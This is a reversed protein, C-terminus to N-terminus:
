RDYEHIGIYFNITKANATPCICRAWVKTGSAIRKSKVGTIGADANNTASIFAVETMDEAAILAALGASEGLAFQIVFTLTSNTTTVLIRHPDLEVKGAEIPSDASGMVQLWNGYADNGSLLAFPAVSPGLRDAVHIEANPATAVGMWKEHGHIHSEVQYTKQEIQRLLGIVDIGLTM